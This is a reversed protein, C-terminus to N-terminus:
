RSNKILELYYPIAIDELNFFEYIIGDCKNYEKNDIVYTKRHRCNDHYFNCNGFDNTFSDKIFSPSNEIQM